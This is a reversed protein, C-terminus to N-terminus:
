GQRGRVRRSRGQGGRRARRPLQPLSKVIQALDGVANTPISTWSDRRDQVPTVAQGTMAAIGAKVSNEANVPSQGRDLRKLDTAQIANRVPEPLQTIAAQYDPDAYKNQLATLNKPRNKQVPGLRDVVRNDATTVLSQGRINALVDELAM